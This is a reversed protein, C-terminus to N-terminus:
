DDQGGFASPVVGDTNFVDSRALARLCQSTARLVASPTITAGTWADFRGGRKQVDWVSSAPHDQHSQIVKDLWSQPPTNFQDGLGPTEHHSLIKVALLQGLPDVALLMEIPGGYGDPAQCTSITAVWQHNFRVPYATQSDSLALGETLPDNNYEISTLLDTLQKSQYRSKESAIREALQQSSIHLGALFILGFAGM